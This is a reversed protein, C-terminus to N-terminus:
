MIILVNLGVGKLCVEATAWPFAYDANGVSHVILKRTTGFAHLLLEQGSVPVTTEKIEIVNQM